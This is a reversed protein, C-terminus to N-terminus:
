AAHVSKRGRVHTVSNSLTDFQLRHGKEPLAASRISVVRPFVRGDDMESERSLGVSYRM